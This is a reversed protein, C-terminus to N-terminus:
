LTLIGCKLRSTLLYRSFNKRFISVLISVAICFGFFAYFVRSLVAMKHYVIQTHFLMNPHLWATLCWVKVRASTPGFGAVGAMIVLWNLDPRPFVLFRSIELSKERKKSGANKRLKMSGKQGKRHQTRVRVWSFPKKADERFCDVRHSSESKRFRLRVTRFLRWKVFQKCVCKIGEWITRIQVWSILCGAIRHIIEREVSLSLCSGGGRNDPNSGM